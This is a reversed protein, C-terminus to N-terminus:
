NSNPMQNLPLHLVNAKSSCKRSGSIFRLAAEVICSLKKKKKKNLIFFQFLAQFYLTGSCPMTKHIETELLFSHGFINDAQFLLHWFQFKSGPLRCSQVTLKFFSHLMQRSAPSFFAGDASIRLRRKALVGSSVLLDLLKKNNRMSSKTTKKKKKHFVRM